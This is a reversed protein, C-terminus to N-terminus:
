RGFPYNKILYEYTTEPVLPRLAEFDGNKLLRRVRSASVAEGDLERRPLEILEVGYKPLRAKLQENYFRTVPCYPETGVFRRVINLAPAIKEGFIRVDLECHIDSIRTKDRIFYSPFTASSVMYGETPHLCVNKLDQCAARALAMRVDPPFMGKNESLIFLHLRDCQAAAREVLYRHGLTFPACNAVIAGNLGEWRDARLANLYQAFGDRQDEMLLCGSARAIPYFGFPRFRFENAPKTFLMLRNHGRSFAERRLETLLRATLDEGQHLPSVAVCKITAGDLSGAAIIEDNELLVCSFDIAEDYDLGCANLFAKMKKLATGHMPSGTQLYM